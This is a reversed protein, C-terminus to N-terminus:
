TSRGIGSRDLLRGIRESAAAAAKSRHSIRNKEELSMEAFTRDSGEPLFVPDYGFGGSGQREPIIRGEIRGDVTEDVATTSGDPAPIRGRLAIVTRFRASRSAAGQMSALLHRVNDDYSPTLGEPMPAYRASRVGPAGGLADVELGTDDALVLLWDFKREVLGYVASAKLRANGELTAETEDIEPSLGLDDLSHLELLPSIGELLPQLERVKDRNGTALLVAIGPKRAAPTDPLGAL